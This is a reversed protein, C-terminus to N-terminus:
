FRYEGRVGLSNIHSDADGGLKYYTYGLGLSMAPNFNYDIGAGAYWDTNDDSFGVRAGGVAAHLDADWMFAGVRGIVSWHDSLDANFNVGLKWGDVDLDTKVNGVSDKFKDFGAYGAEVGVVGWRYGFNIEGAFASDDVNNEAVSGMGLMGDLVWGEHEAAMVPGAGLLATAILATLTRKM